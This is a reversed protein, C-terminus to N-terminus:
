LNSLNMRSFPPQSEKAITRISFHMWIFENEDPIDYLIVLLYICIHLSSKEIYLHFLNFDLYSSFILGFRFIGFSSSAKM